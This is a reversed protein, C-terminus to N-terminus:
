EVCAEIEDEVWVPDRGRLEAAIERLVSGVSPEPAPGYATARVPPDSRSAAAAINARERPTLESEMKAVLRAVEADQDAERQQWETLAAALDMESIEAWRRLGDIAKRREHATMLGDPRRTAIAEVQRRLRLYRLRTREMRESELWVVSVSAQARDDVTSTPLISLLAGALADPRENM